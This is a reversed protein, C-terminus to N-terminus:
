LGQKWPDMSGEGRHMSLHANFYTQLNNIAPMTPSYVYIWSISIRNSVHSYRRLLEPLLHVFFSAPKSLYSHVGTQLKIDLTPFGTSTIGHAVFLSDAPFGARGQLVNDWTITNCPHVYRPRSFKTRHFWINEVYNSYNGEWGKCAFIHMLECAGLLFRWIFTLNVPCKLIKLGWCPVKKMDGKQSWSNLPAQIKPSSTHM